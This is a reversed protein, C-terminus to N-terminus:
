CFVEDTRKNIPLIKVNLVIAAWLTVVTVMVQVLSTIFGFFFWVAVITNNLLETSHRSIFYM